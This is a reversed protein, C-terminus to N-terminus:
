NIEAWSLLIFFSCGSTSPTTCYEEKANDLVKEEINYIKERLRSLASAKHLFTAKKKM